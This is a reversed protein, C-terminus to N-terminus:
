IMEVPSIETPAPKTLVAEEEDSHSGQSPKGSVSPKGGLLMPAVNRLHGHHEELTPKPLKVQLMGEANIHMTELAGRRWDTGDQRPTSDDEDVEKNELLKDEVFDEAEDLFWEVLAVMYHQTTGVAAGGALGALTGAPGFSAGVYAGALAGAGVAGVLGAVKEDGEGM